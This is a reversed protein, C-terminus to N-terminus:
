NKTRSRRTLGALPVTFEGPASRPRIDSGRWAHGYVVEISVSIKEGLRRQELAREVIGWKKRGLPVRRRGATANTAGSGKLERMLDRASGFTVTLRETDMVPELFGSRMLADGLDHMDIFRHVHTQADIQKFAERVERLTDPGVSTFTFLGEPRLVRATEKFVQDPYNCWALMLNSFVLDITGSRLPLSHADGALRGFKKFFTQERRAERLMALSMDLALVEAKPYRDKLARTSQGSASGLDLVRAPDVRVLDLRELVRSRIEAQVVAARAYTRSARDFARRIARAELSYEDPPAFQMASVIARARALTVARDPLM